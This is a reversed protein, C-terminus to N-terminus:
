NGPELGHWWNSEQRLVAVGKPRQRSNAAEKQAAVTKRAVDEPSSGHPNLSIITFCSIHHAM